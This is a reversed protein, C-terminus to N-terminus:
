GSTDGAKISISGGESAAGGKAAISISGVKGNPNHGSHIHLNGSSASESYSAGSSLMLDGSTSTGDMSGDATKITIVGTVSDDTYSAGSSLQLNGGNGSQSLGGNIFLTGGDGKNSSGGTLFIQGGDNANDSSDSGATMVIAGGGGSGSGASIIANGGTDDDSTSGATLSYLFCLCTQSRLVLAPFACCPLVALGSVLCIFTAALVLRQLASVSFCLALKSM